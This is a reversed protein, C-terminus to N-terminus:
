CKKKCPCRRARWSTNTLIIWIFPFVVVVIRSYYIIVTQFIWIIMTFSKVWIDLYLYKIFKISHYFVLHRTIIYVICFVSNRKKDTLVSINQDLQLKLNVFNKASNKVISRHRCFIWNKWYWQIKFMEINFCVKKIAFGFYDDATPVERGQCNLFWYFSMYNYNWLFTHHYNM